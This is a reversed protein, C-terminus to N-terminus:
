FVSQSHEKIHAPSGADYKMWRLNCHVVTSKRKAYLYPAFRIRVLKDVVEPSYFVM